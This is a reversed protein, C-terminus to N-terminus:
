NAAGPQRPAGHFEVAFSVPATVVLHHPRNPPITFRDGGVLSHRGKEEDEFVFDVAGSYVALVGWVGDAVRHARLLGAPVTTETFVATTRTHELGAPMEM